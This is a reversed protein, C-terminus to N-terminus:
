MESEWEELCTDQIIAKKLNRSDAEALRTLEVQVKLWSGKDIKLFQKCLQKIVYLEQCIFCSPTFKLGIQRLNLCDAFFSNFKV